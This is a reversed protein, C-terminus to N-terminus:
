IYWNEWTWGNDWLAVGGVDDRLADRIVRSLRKAMKGYYKRSTKTKGRFHTAAVCCERQDVSVRRYLTNYQEVTTETIM